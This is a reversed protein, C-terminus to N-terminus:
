LFGAPPPSRFPLPLCYSAFPWLNLFHNFASRDQKKRQFKDVSNRGKFRRLDEIVRASELITASHFLPVEIRIDMIWPYLPRAPFYRQTLNQSLGFYTALWIALLM